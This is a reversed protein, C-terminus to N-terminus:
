CPTIKYVYEVTCMGGFCKELAHKLNLETDIDNDELVFIPADVINDILVVCFKSQHLLKFHSDYVSTHKTNCKYKDSRVFCTCIYVGDNVKRISSEAGLDEIEKIYM